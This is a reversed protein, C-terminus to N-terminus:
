RAALALVRREFDRKIASWAAADLGEPMPERDADAFYVLARIIHGPDVNPFKRGFLSLAAELSLDRATLMAHLDWFDRLAGRGGIASLKMCILDDMSALKIPSDTTWEAAGVLPYRYRLLSAPVGGVDLHLTGPARSVVTVHPLQTLPEDLTAPDRQPAFLDLDHSARHHLRLAIAVGGGLYFEDGLVPALTRLAAAQAASLERGM